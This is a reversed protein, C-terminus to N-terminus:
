IQYSSLDAVWLRGNFTAEVVCPSLSHRARNELIRCEGLLYRYRIDRGAQMATLINSPTRTLKSSTCLHMKALRLM